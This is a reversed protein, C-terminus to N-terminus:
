TSKLRNSTSRAQSVVGQLAKSTAALNSLDYIIDVTPKNVPWLINANKLNVQIQICDVVHCTSSESFSYVEAALQSTQPCVTDYKTKDLFCCVPCHSHMFFPHLIIISHNSITPITIWSYHQSSAVIQNSQACEDCKRCPSAMSTLVITVRANSYRM